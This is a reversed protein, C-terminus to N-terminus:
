LVGLNFKKYFNLFLNVEFSKEDLVLNLEREDLTPLNFYTLKILIKILSIDSTISSSDEM